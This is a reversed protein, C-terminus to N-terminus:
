IEIELKENNIIEIIRNYEKILKHKDVLKETKISLKFIEELEIDSFNTITELELIYEKNKDLNINEEKRSHFINKDSEELLRLIVKIDEKEKKYFLIFKEVSNDKLDTIMSVLNYENKELNEQIEKMGNKLPDIYNIRLRNNLLFLEQIKIEYTEYKTFENILYEYLYKKIILPEMELLFNLINEYKAIKNQTIIQNIINEKDSREKIKRAIFYEQMSKHNWYYENGNTSFICTGVTLIRLINSVNLKYSYKELISEIDTTIEHKTYETKLNNIYKLSFDTLIRDLLNREILDKRIFNEKSSSDHEEYLANYVRSYLEEKSTPIDKKYYYTTYILSALLPTKLFSSLIRKNERLQLFFKNDNKVYKKLFNRGQNFDLNKIKYKFFNNFNNLGNESRSSLIYYNNPYM